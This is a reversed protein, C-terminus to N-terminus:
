GKPRYGCEPRGFRRSSILVASLPALTATRSTLGSKGAESNVASPSSGGRSLAAAPSPRVMMQTGTRFMSEALAAAVVREVSVSMRGPELLDDADAVGALLEGALDLGQEPRLALETTAVSTAVTTEGKGGTKKQPQCSRGAAHRWRCWGLWERQWGDARRAEAASTTDAAQPVPLTPSSSTPSSRNSVRASHASQRRIESARWCNMAVATAPRCGSPHQDTKGHQARRQRRICGPLPIRQQIAQAAPLGGAGPGPQDSLSLREPMHIPADQVAQGSHLQALQQLLHWGGHPPAHILPELAEVGSRPQGSGRWRCRWRQWL